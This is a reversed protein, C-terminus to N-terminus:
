DGDVTAIIFQDPVELTPLAIMSVKTEVTVPDSMKYTTLAVGGDVIQVTANSGSMLDAEEPTTGYYFKGVAGDPFLVVINDAVFKTFTGNANTYGKNYIYVTCGTESLIYEKLRVTNPTVKGDGLIYIANKVADCKKMLNFTNLNMLLNTPRKGTAQEIQDQWSIIDSIPDATTTASWKATTSLTKKNASPIGFDYSVTQGNSSFSITGSTMLGARMIERTVAADDLLTREDNFVENRIADIYAQNGSAMVKLLEQRIKENLVLSNKFFPMETTVKSFAERSLPIVKADFASLDLQKLAPRKGKIYSLEIGLQRQEPFFAEFLYPERDLESQEWKSALFKPTVVEFINM